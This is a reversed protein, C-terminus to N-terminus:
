LSLIFKGSRMKLFNSFWTMFQVIKEWVFTNIIRSIIVIKCVNPGTGITKFIAIYAVLYHLM